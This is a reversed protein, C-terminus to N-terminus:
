SALTIRMDQGDIDYGISDWGPRTQRAFLEIKALDPYMAEIREYVAIPKHSHEQRPAIILQSVRNTAPKPPKGRTALLCVETNSKTYYGVGFFPQGDRPNTKVWCFGLTKYEFGWAWIVATADQLRPWTTWLFLVADRAAPPRLGAIEDTTMVPYHAMAGGSFRTNLNNRANYKWPPDALVLGYKDTTLTDIDLTM